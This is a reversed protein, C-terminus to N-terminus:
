RGCLAMWQNADDPDVQEGAAHPTKHDPTLHVTGGGVPDIDGAKLECSEGAERWECRYEARELVLKWARPSIKVRRKAKRNRTASPMLYEGPKLWSRDRHLLITYGFDTRLESLRQHWNEVRRKRKPGRAVESIQEGTLVKEVNDLFVAEIRKRVSPQDYRHPDIQAYIKRGADKAKKAM